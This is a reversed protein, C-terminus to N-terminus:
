TGSQVFSSAIPNEVTGDQTPDACGANDEHLVGFYDGSIDDVAIFERQLQKTVQVGNVSYTLTGSKVDSSSWSSGVKIVQM